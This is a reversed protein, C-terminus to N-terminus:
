DWRKGGFVSQRDWLNEPIPSQVTWEGINETGARRTCLIYDIDVIFGDKKIVERGRYGNEPVM